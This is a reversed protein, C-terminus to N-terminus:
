HAGKLFHNDPQIGSLQQQLLVVAQAWVRHALEDSLGTAVSIAHWNMHLLSRMILVARQLSPLGLLAGGLPTAQKAKVSEQGAIASKKMVDMAMAILLPEVESDDKSADGRGSFNVLVQVAVTEAPVILGLFMRCFAVVENKWRNCFKERQVASLNKNASM